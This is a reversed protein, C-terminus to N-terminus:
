PPDRLDSLAESLVDTADCLERISDAQSLLEDGSRHVFVRLTRYRNNGGTRKNRDLLETYWFTDTHAPRMLEAIQEFNDVTM